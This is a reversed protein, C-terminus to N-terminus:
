EGGWTLKFILAAEEDLFYFDTVIDDDHVLQGFNDRGIETELWKWLDMSQDIKDISWRIRVVHPFRSLKELEDQRCEAVMRDWAECEQEWRSHYLLDATIDRILQREMRHVFAREKAYHGVSM